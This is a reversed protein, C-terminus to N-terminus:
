ERRGAAKCAPSRRPPSAGGGVTAMATMAVPSDIASKTTVSRTVRAIAWRWARQSEPFRNETGTTAEGARYPRAARTSVADSVEGPTVRYGGRAGIPSTGGPRAADGVGDAHDNLAQPGLDVGPPEGDLADDALVDPDLRIHEGVAMVQDGRHQAM